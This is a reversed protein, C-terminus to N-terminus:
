NKFVMKLCFDGDIEIHGSFFKGKSSVFNDFVDSYGFSLLKEMEEESMKRGYLQEGVSFDCECCRWKNKDRYITKKCKPCKASLTKAEFSLINDVLVLRGRLTAKTDKRTWGDQWATKGTEFLESKEKESIRRGRYVFPLSFGCKKCIHSIEGKQTEINCNPCNM